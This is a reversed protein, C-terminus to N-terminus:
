EVSVVVDDILSLSLAVRLSGVDETFVPWVDVRYVLM